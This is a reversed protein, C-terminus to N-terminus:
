EPPWLRARMTASAVRVARVFLFQEDELDGLFVVQLFSFDLFQGLISEAFADPSEVLEFGRTQDLFEQLLGTLALAVALITPGPRLCTHSSQRQRVGLLELM